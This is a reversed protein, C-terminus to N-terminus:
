WENSSISIDDDRNTTWYKSNYRKWGSYKTSINSTINQSTLPVPESSLLNKIQYHSRKLGELFILFQHFFLAFIIFNDVVFFKILIM